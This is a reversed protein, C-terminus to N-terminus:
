RNMGVYTPGIDPHNAAIGTNPRNMGVYTPGIVNRSQM